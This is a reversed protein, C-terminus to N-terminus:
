AASMKVFEVLTAVKMQRVVVRNLASGVRTADSVVQAIQTKLVLIPVHATKAVVGPLVTITPRAIQRRAVGGM